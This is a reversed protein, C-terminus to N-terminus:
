RDCGKIGMVSQPRLGQPIEGLSFDWEQSM